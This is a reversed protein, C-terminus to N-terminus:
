RQELLAKLAALDRRVWEADAQLQADSVGPSRLLTFLLTAGDGNAIVRMPIYIEEGQAPQVYHDAVGYPNPPTFRVQMPRQPTLTSWSGDAQQSLEGLGSAWRRYNEPVALFASVAAAPLDIDIGLSLYGSQKTM